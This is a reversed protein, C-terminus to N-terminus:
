VRSALVCVFSGERGRGLTGRHGGAVAVLGENKRRGKSRSDKIEDTRESVLVDALRVTETWRPAVRVM